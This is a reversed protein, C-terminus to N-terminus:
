AEPFRLDRARTNRCHARDRWGLDPWTRAPPFAEQVLSSPQMSLGKHERALYRRAIHHLESQILPLLRDLAAHDRGRWSTLLGTIDEVKGQM